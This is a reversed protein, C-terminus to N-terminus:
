KVSEAVARPVYPAIDKKFNLLERVMTSSIAADDARMYITEMGPNILQNIQAINEEYNYDMNNRLGRVYYKIGNEACYDAVMGDFVVVKVNEIGEARVTKEIAARMNAPDFARKKQTNVGILVHLEDMLAAAKKVIAHHGNTYPDFSGAYLGKRNM